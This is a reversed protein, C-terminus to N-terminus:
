RRIINREIVKCLEGPLKSLSDIGIYKSGFINELADRGGGIAMGYVKALKGLKLVEARCQEPGGDPAGDTIVIVLKDEETQKKLVRPLYLLASYLPTSGGANMRVIGTHAYRGKLRRDSFHFIHVNPRGSKFGLVTIPIKLSECVEQLVVCARKANDVPYGSMSGSLDVLVTINLDAEDNKEIRKACIAGSPIRSLSKSDIRGAHLYRSVEDVNYNIINKLGTKLKNIVPSM